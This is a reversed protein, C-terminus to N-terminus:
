RGASETALWEDVLAALRRLEDRLYNRWLPMRQELVRLTALVLSAQEHAIKNVPDVSPVVVQEMAKIMVQIQLSPRIDM